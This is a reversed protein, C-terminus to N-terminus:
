GVTLMDIAQLRKSVISMNLAMSVTGVGGTVNVRTRLCSATKGALCLATEALGVSTFHYGPDGDGSLLVEHRKAISARVKKSYAEFRYKWSGRQYLVPAPCTTLSSWGAPHSALFATWRTYMGPTAGVRLHVKQGHHVFSRRLLRADSYM